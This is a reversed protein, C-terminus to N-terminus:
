AEEMGDIDASHKCCIGHLYYRPRWVFPLKNQISM